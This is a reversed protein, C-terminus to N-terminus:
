PKIESSITWALLKANELHVKKQSPNKEIAYKEMENVIRDKIQKVTRRIRQKQIWRQKNINILHPNKKYRERNEENRAEQNFRKREQQTWQEYSLGTSKSFGYGELEGLIKQTIELPIPTESVSKKSM